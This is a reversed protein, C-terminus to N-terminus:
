RSSQLRAAHVFPLNGTSEAPVTFLWSSLGLSIYYALLWSLLIPSPEYSAINGWEYNRVGGGGGVTALAILALVCYGYISATLKRRPQNLYTTTFHYAFGPFFLVPIAVINQYLLVDNPFGNRIMVLFIGLDWSATIFLLAAFLLHYRRRGRSLVVSVVLINIVFGIFSAISTILVVSSPM